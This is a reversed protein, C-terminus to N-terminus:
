NTHFVVYFKLKLSLVSTVDYYYISTLFRPINRDYPHWWKWMCLNPRELCDSVNNLINHPILDKTLVLNETSSALNPTGVFTNSLIWTKQPTVSKINLSWASWSSNKISSHLSVTDSQFMLFRLVNDHQFVQVKITITEYNSLISIKGSIARVAASLSM